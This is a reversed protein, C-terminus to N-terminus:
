ATFKNIGFFLKIGVVKTIRARKMATLVYLTAMVDFPTHYKVSRGVMKKADSVSISKTGGLKKWTRMVADNGVVNFNGTNPKSKSSVILIFSDRSKYVYYKSRVSETLGVFKIAHFLSKIKLGPAKAM